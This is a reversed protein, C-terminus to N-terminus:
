KSAPVQYPRLGKLSVATVSDSYVRVDYYGLSVLESRTGDASPITGVGSMRVKLGGTNPSGEVFPTAPVDLAAYLGLTSTSSNGQDPLPKQENDTFYTLTRREANIDVTANSLRVNGCDHVEGAVVSHGPAIPGNGAVNPIVQYDDIIVARVPHNWVANAEDYEPDGSTVYQNYEFLTAWKKPSVASKTLILLETDTPVGPYEYEYVKRPSDSCSSNEEEQFAGTAVTTFPTGVLEGVQGDNESGDRIVKHIEITVDESSCGNAFIKVVGKMTVTKSTGATPYHAPDFCSLDAPGTGAYEDTNSTRTLCSSKSPDSAPPPCSYGTKPRPTKVLVCCSEWPRLAAGGCALDAPCDEARCFADNTPRKDGCAGAAANVLMDTSSSGDPNTGADTGTQGVPTDNKSSCGAQLAAGASLGTVLLMAISPKM